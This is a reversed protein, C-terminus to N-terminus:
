SNHHGEGVLDAVNCLLGHTTFVGRYHSPLRSLLRVFDIVAMLMVGNLVLCFLFPSM